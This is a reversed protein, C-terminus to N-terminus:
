RTQPYWNTPTSSTQQQASLAAQGAQMLELYAQIISEVEGNADPTATRRPETLQQGSAPVGVRESSVTSTVPTRASVGSVLNPIATGNNAPPSYSPLASPSAQSTSTWDTLSLSPVNTPAEAPILEFSQNSTNSEISKDAGDYLAPSGGVPSSVPQASISNGSDASLTSPLLPLTTPIQTPELLKATALPATDVVRTSDDTTETISNEASSLKLGDTLSGVLEEGLAEDNGKNDVTLSHLDPGASTIEPSQDATAQIAEVLPIEISALEDLPDSQEALTTSSRHVRSKLVAISTIYLAILLIILVVGSSWHEWWSQKRETPVALQSVITAPPTIPETTTTSVDESQLQQLALTPLDEVSPLPHVQVSPLRFLVPTKELLGQPQLRSSPRSRDLQNPTSKTM